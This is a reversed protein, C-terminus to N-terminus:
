EQVEIVGRFQEDLKGAKSKTRLLSNFETCHPEIETM